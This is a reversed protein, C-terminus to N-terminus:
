NVERHKAGPNIIIIIAYPYQLNIVAVFSVTKYLKLGIKDLSKETTKTCKLKKYNEKRNYFYLTVHGTM